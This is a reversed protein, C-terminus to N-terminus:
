LLLHQLQGDVTCLRKLFNGVVLGIRAENESKASGGGTAIFHPQVVIGVMGLLSLSIIYQLPFEGSSPGAFLSFYDESIRGHMIYEEMMTSSGEDAFKSCSAVSWLSDAIASLILIFIGQILDTWYAATLGGLVGYIM